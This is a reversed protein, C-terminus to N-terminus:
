RREATTKRRILDTPFVDLRAPVPTSDREAIREVLRRAALRGMDPIPQRVTTLQIRSWGAVPIDDFGIISLEEPVRVGRRDAAELAGLAVVDNACFVATPPEPLSLLELANAYGSEHSYTGALRLEEDLEIGAEALAACFGAEREISTWASDPGLLLGIRRHGLDLLHRAALRGGSRNDAVVTDANAGPVSRVTLVVPMGQAEFAAPAGSDIAATTLIVGDLSHDLLGSFAALESLADLRDILLLVRYGAVTLESHIGELLYMYFPNAVDAVVVGVTDTRQRSLNRALGNPVYGLQEAAARVRERLEPTVREDDRMARSVTAQSVGAAAAVDHSTVRQRQRDTAM